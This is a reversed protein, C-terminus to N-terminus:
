EIKGELFTAHTETVRVELVRGLTRDPCVNKVVVPKYAFNRGVLSGPSRGIEDVLIEGTWGLWRKNREAVVEKALKSAIRSRLKIESPDLFDWRMNAAATGPRPFFRSINVIDPQVQRIVNLTREFAEQTEGPFGCIIDTAVTIDPFEKRFTSVATVFEDASYPRKMLKLTRDDVSQVPLHVFKFIKMSKFAQVIEGLLDKSVTPTMMGVRIRFDEKIECLVGLLAALNTDIDRGYCATDQSTLWLEHVGSAM